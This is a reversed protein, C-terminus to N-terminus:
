LARRWAKGTVLLVAVSPQGAMALHTFLGNSGTAPEGNVPTDVATNVDFPPPPVLDQAARATSGGRGGFRLSTQQGGLHEQLRSGPADRCRTRCGAVLAMPRDRVLNEHGLLGVQRQGSMIASDAHGIHLPLNFKLSDISTDMQGA